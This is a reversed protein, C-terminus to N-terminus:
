TQPGYLPIQQHKHVLGEIMFCAEEAINVSLDAIREVNRCIRILELGAEFSLRKDKNMITEKIEMTISKNLSDVMCEHEAINEIFSVDRSLFCEISAKLMGVSLNGMRPLGFLVYEERLEILNLISEAINVAHDGIRELMPNIKQIALVSRIMEPPMDGMSLALANFTSNDIDIEFSNVTKDEAIIRQAGLTDSRELAALSRKVADEVLRAMSEVQYKEMGIPGDTATVM